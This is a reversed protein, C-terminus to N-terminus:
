KDRDKDGYKGRPEHLAPPATWNGRMQEVPFYRRGLIDAVIGDKVFLDRQAPSLKELEGLVREVQELEAPSLDPQAPAPRPLAKPDLDPVLLQWPEVGIGSALAEITSVQAPFEANLVRGVTRQDITRGRTTANKSVTAQKLRRENMLSRVNTALVEIL